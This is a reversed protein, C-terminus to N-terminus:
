INHNKRDFRPVKYRRRLPAVGAGAAAPLVGKPAPSLVRWPWRVVGKRPRDAAGTGGRRPGLPSASRAARVTRPRSDLRTRLGGRRRVFCLRHQLAAFRGPPPASFFSPAPCRARGRRPACPRGKAKKPPAPGTQTPHVGGPWYRRPGACRAPRPTRGPRIRRGYRHLALARKPASPVGTPAPARHSAARAASRPGRLRRCHVPIPRQQRNAKPTERFRRRKM